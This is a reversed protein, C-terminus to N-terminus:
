AEDTTDFPMVALVPAFSAERCLAMEPRADVVVAPACGDAAGDDAGAPLARAGEAVAARVLREAQRAQSPLALAMRPGRAALSGLTDIFPAYLSRHVLARRVAICTQGRNLTSGFWAARAALTPDADPLVFMADCGSLELTSSI